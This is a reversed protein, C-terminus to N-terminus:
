GVLTTNSRKVKVTIALNTPLVDTKVVVLTTQTDAIKSAARINHAHTFAADKIRTNRDSSPGRVSTTDTVTSWTVFTPWLSTGVDPRIAATIQVQYSDSFVKSSHKSAFINERCKESEWDRFEFMSLSSRPVVKFVNQDDVLALVITLRRIVVVMATAKNETKIASNDNVLNREKVSFFSSRGSVTWNDIYADFKLKVILARNKRVDVKQQNLEIAQTSAFDVVARDGDVISTLKFFFASVAIM